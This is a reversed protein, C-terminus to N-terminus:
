SEGRMISRLAQGQILRDEELLQQQEMFDAFEFWNFCDTSSM